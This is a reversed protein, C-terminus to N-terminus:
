EEKVVNEFFMGILSEERLKRVFADSPLKAGNWGSLGMFAIITGSLLNKPLISDTGTNRTNRFGGKSKGMPKLITRRQFM